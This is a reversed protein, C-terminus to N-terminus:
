EVQWERPGSASVGLFTVAANSSSSFEYDQTLVLEDGEKHFIRESLLRARKYM